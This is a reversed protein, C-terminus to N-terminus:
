NEFRPNGAWHAGARAASITKGRWRPRQQALAWDSSLPGLSVFLCSIPLRLRAVIRSGMQNFSTSGEYGLLWTCPRAYVALVPADAAHRSRIVSSTGGCSTM